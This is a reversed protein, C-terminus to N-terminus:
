RDTRPPRPRWLSWGDDEGLLTGRRRAEADQAGSLRGRVLVYDFREWLVAREPWRPDGSVIVVPAPLGRRYRLPLLNHPYIGPDYVPADLGCLAAFTEHPQHMAYGEWHRSAVRETVYAIEGREAPCARALERMGAYEGQLARLHEDIMVLRAAPLVFLAAALATRWAPHRPARPAVVLPLLWLGMDLQRSAVTQGGLVTEPLALWSLATAAFAVEYAGVRRGPAARRFMLATAVFALLGVAFLKEGDGKTLALAGLSLKDWFTPSPAGPESPLTASHAGGHTSAFWVGFLVLSPGAIVLARAALRGAQATAAAPDARYSALARAIATLAVLAVVIMTWTYVHAHALFCLAAACSAVLLPRAGGPGARGRADPEEGLARGSEAVVVVMLPAALLFPWYGGLSWSSVYALPVSLLAGWPWRGTRWLAYATVLPLAVFYATTTTVQFARVPDFLKEPLYALAYLLTNADLPRLPEYLGQYFADGRWRAAIAAVLTHYHQDQGPGIPSATHVAATGIVLVALAGIFAVPSRLRAMAARTPREPFVM